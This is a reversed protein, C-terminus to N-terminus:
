VHNYRETLAYKTPPETTGFATTSPTPEGHEACWEIAHTQTHRNEGVAPISLERMRSSVPTFATRSLLFSRSRRTAEGM